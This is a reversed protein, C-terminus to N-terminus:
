QTGGLNSKSYASNTYITGERGRMRAEDIKKRAAIKAAPAEPDPMSVPPTTIKPPAFLSKVGKLISGM